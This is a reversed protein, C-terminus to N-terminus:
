KKVESVLAPIREALAAALQRHGKSTLHMGDFESIEAIGEADMFACNLLVAKMKYEKALGASKEVCDKGMGPGFPHNFVCPRIHPPAIILINPKGDRWCLTEKAKRALREMGMGIAASNASFYEKTDNTGLMFILLDIPEHTMLTSYIVELGSLNECFPDDFVTTRGSLGEEIVTYAEGLEKQLLCTWRENEDFRCGDEARYGHTNSDGFCLIHKKM